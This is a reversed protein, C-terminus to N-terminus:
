IFAGLPTGLPCEVKVSADWKFHIGGVGCHTAVKGVRITSMTILICRGCVVTCGCVCLGIM